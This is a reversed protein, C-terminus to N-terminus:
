SSHYLYKNKETRTRKDFVPENTEFMPLTSNM